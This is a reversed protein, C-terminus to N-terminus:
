NKLYEEQAKAYRTNQEDMEVKMSEILSSLESLRAQLRSIKAALDANQTTLANNLSDYVTMAAGQEQNGREPIPRIRPQIRKTYCLPHATRHKFFFFHIEAYLTIIVFIWKIIGLKWEIRVCIDFFRIGSPKQNLFIPPDAL